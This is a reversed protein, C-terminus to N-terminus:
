VGSSGAEKFAVPFDLYFTKFTHTNTKSECSRESTKKGQHELSKKPIRTM